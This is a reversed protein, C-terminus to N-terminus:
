RLQLISSDIRAELAEGFPALTLVFEVGPFELDADHHAAVSLGIWDLYRRQEALSLTFGIPADSDRVGADRLVREAAWQALRQVPWADLRTTVHHPPPTRRQLVQALPVGRIQVGARRGEAGPRRLNWERRLRDAADHDLGTGLLAAMWQFDWLLWGGTPALMASLGDDDPAACPAIWRAWDDVDNPDWRSFATWIHATRWWDGRCEVLADALRAASGPGQGSALADKILPEGLERWVLIHDPQGQPHLLALWEGLWAEAPPMDIAQLRLHALADALPLITWQLANDTNM